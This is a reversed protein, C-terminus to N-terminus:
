HYLSIPSLNCWDNCAVNEKTLFTKIIIQYKKTQKCSLDNLLAKNIEITKNNIKICLAAGCWLQKFRLLLPQYRKFFQHKKYCTSIMKLATKKVFISPINLLLLSYFWSLLIKISEIRLIFTLHLNNLFCVSYKARKLQFCLTKLFLKISYFAKRMYPSSFVSCKRWTLNILWYFKIILRASDDIM